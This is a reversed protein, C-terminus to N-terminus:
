RKHPGISKQKIYVRDVVMDKRGDEKKFGMWVAVAGEDVWESM